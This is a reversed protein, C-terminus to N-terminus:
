LNRLYITGAGKVKDLADKIASEIAKIDQLWGELQDQTKLVQDLGLQRHDQPPGRLMVAEAPTEFAFRRAWKFEVTRDFLWVLDEMDVRVRNMTNMIVSRGLRMVERREM